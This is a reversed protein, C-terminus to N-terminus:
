QWELGSHVINLWSKMCSWLTEVFSWSVDSVSVNPVDTAQGFVSWWCKSADCQQSHLCIDVFLRRHRQSAPKSKWMISVDHWQVTLQISWANPQGCAMKMEGRQKLWEINPMFTLYIWWGHPLYVILQPIRSIWFVCILGVSPALHVNDTFQEVSWIVTNNKNIPNTYKKFM